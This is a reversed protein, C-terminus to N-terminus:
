SDDAFVRKRGSVQTVWLGMNGVLLVLVGETVARQVDMLSDLSGTTVIQIWQM